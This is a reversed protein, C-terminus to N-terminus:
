SKGEKKYINYRNCGTRVAFIDQSMQIVEPSWVESLTEDYVVNFDKDLIWLKCNHSTPLLYAFVVLFCEKKSELGFVCADAIGRPTEWERMRMGNEGIIFLKRHSSFFSVDRYLYYKRCDFEFSIREPMFAASTIGSYFGKIKETTKGRRGLFYRGLIEGELKRVSIRAWGGNIETYSPVPGKIKLYLSNCGQLLYPFSIAMSFILLRKIKNKDGCAIMKLRKRLMKM